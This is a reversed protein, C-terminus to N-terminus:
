NSGLPILRPELLDANLISNKNVGTLYSSVSNLATYINAQFLPVAGTLLSSHYFMGSINNMLLATQLLESSIM